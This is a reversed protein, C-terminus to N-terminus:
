KKGPFSLTLKKENVAEVGVHLVSVTRGDRSTAKETNLPDPCYEGRYIFAYYHKGPPLPLELRYVGPSTEVLEQIFPDWNNFDGTVTVVEGPAGKWLFRATQGDEGILNYIGPKEDSLYPVEVLSLPTGGGHDEARFPNNADLTWAGDIVLRYALPESIKLPIPYALVFVGYSNREFLHIERYNEREFAAGVFRYPGKASLILSDGCIEPKGAEAKTSLLLHLQLSDVEFAPAQLALSLAFALPLAYRKM